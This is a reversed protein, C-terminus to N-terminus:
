IELCYLHNEEDCSRFIKSTWWKQDAWKQWEDAPLKPFANIGTWGLFQASDSVWNACNDSESFVDGDVGTNTWVRVSSHVVGLEDMTVGDGPGDAILDALNSAARKGNVLAYPRDPDVDTFRTLPSDDSDSLWARLQLTDIWSADEALNQCLLDAGTVGSLAGVFPESTIFIRYAELDCTASCAVFGDEHENTGNAAGNDCAEVPHLQGDGCYAALQCDPTCGGYLGTNGGPGEDCHEVGVWLDGDGCIALTCDTKCYGKDSNDELGLDCGEGLDVIGDGCKSLAGTSGSEPAVTTGSGPTGTSTGTSGIDITTTGDIPGSTSDSAVTPTDPPLDPIPETTSSSSSDVLGVSPPTGPCASLMMLPIFVPLRIDM